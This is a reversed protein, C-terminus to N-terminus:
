VNVPETEITESPPPPPPPSWNAFMDSIIADVPDVGEPMDPYLERAAEAAAKEKAKVRKIAPVMLPLGSRISSKLLETLVDVRGQDGAAWAKEISYVLIPPGFVAGLIDFRGRAKVIPQIAVKDVLSGKAADDLMEGAVPAQFQMCRGLPGHAKTRGIFGGVGGWIDTLTDAASVRKGGGTSSRPVKGPRKEKTPQTLRPSEDRVKKKGQWWKRKEPTVEQGTPSPSGLSGPTVEGSVYPSGPQADVSGGDLVTDGPDVPLEDLQDQGDTTSDVMGNGDEKLQDFVQGGFVQARRKPNAYCSSCLGRSKHKKSTRGCSLCADYNLAWRSGDELM